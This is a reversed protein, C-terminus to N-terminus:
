GKVCKQQKDSWDYGKPCPPPVCKGTKSNFTFHPPCTKSPRKTDNSSQGRTSGAAVFLMATLVILAYMYRM